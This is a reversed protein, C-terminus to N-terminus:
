QQAEATEEAGEEDEAQINFYRHKFFDCHTLAFLVVRCSVTCSSWVFVFCLRCFCFVFFCSYLVFRLEYQAKTTAVVHLWDRLKQAKLYKKTLYKLYRKSFPGTAQVSVKSKDRTVKVTEGLAGARGNM